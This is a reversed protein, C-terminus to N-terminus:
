DNNAEEKCDIIHAATPYRVDCGCTQCTFTYPNDRYLPAGVRLAGLADEKGARYGQEWASYESM